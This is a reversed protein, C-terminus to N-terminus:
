KILYDDRWSVDYDLAAVLALIGGVSCGYITRIDEQKWLGAMKTYAFAGYSVIGSPGGGSFVIHKIGM